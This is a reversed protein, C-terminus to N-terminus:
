AKVYLEYLAPPITGDRRAQLWEDAPRDLFLPASVVKDVDLECDTLKM